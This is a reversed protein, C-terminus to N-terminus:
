GEKGTPARVQWRRESFKARGGIENANASGGGRVGRRHNKGQSSVGEGGGNGEERDVGSKRKRTM